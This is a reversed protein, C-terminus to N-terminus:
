GILMPRVERPVDDVSMPRDVVQNAMLQLQAELDSFFRREYLALWPEVQARDVAQLTERAQKLAEVLPTLVRESAADGREAAQRALQGARLRMAGLKQLLTDVDAPDPPEVKFHVDGLEAQIERIIKVKAEQGEPILEAISHVAAVTPLRALSHQLVRTEEFTDCVVAAYITSEADAKLLRLETEVSPLNKSQLNLVNYDFSVRWGVLLAAVTIAACVALVAVPKRLLLQEFRTAAARAPISTSEHKRRVAMLLAPLVLLMVATAILMGGGAIVGLEIVGRFGSLGMAFFAAANTVGATAISSGTQEIAHHVATARDAGRSLEEEYRAILQIGLDIGLGVIMVAFTVTIINLHGISLAAYGMSMAIVLVISVVALAPRILERFGFAFLAGVLLLTLLTAREADRQSLRMEDSNLVPEGTLGIRVDSFQRQVDAIIRQLKLTTAADEQPVSINDYARPHILMIFMRGDRFTQYGHWKMQQEAEGVMEESFFAGAWPSLLQDKAGNGQFENMQRVIGTITPLFSEMNRRDAEPATEMTALMQIMADFFEDLKPRRQLIDVLQKFDKLSDRIRTLDNVSLYYLFWRQMADFDVRYFVDDATFQQAASKDEAGPNNAPSLLADAFADVVAQNREPRDSEVVIIFDEESHFERAYESFLRWYESERGILGTRGTQFDLHRAAYTAAGAALAVGAAVFLWPWRCIANALANFIRRRM